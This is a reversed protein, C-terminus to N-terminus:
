KPRSKNTRNAKSDNKRNPKSDKVTSKEKRSQTNSKQRTVRKENKHTSQRVSKEQKPQKARAPRSSVNSAPRKPERLPKAETERKPPRRQLADTERREKNIENSNPRSGQVEKPRKGVVPRSTESTVSADQNGVPRKGNVNTNPVPRERELRSNDPRQREPKPKGDPYKQAFLQEGDRRREPKSYTDKYRGRNINVVVTPSYNRINTVYVSHYRNCRHRRWPRYYMHYHAHWHYHYGYYYHWYHPAWPNWYSPYYGWYWVSRWPRYIPRFIHVIVPWTSVEYYTTVVVDDPQSQYSNGKYGPNPTEAYVPEVIYNPGYLAEDGILQIQASGDAFQQVTFVAVDQQENQNLAVRLVITHTNDEVYDYVMIYDVLNDGNLDLNNILKDPDNLNREFAEITESDRFVDMVAYLNLNDGPLGLYDSSQPQALVNTAGALWVLLCISFNSIIKKM